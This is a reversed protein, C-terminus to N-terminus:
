NIVIIIDKVITLDILIIRNTINDEGKWQNQGIILLFHITIIIM